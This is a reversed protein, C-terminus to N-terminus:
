KLVLVRSFPIYLYASSKNNQLGNRRLHEISNVKFFFDSAKTLTFEIIKGRTFKKKRENSWFSENSKLLSLLCDYACIGFDMGVSLFALALKSDMCVSLFALGFSLTWVFVSFRFRLGQTRAFLFALAFVLAWVFVSFRFRLCLLKYLCLSVCACLCFDMCVCLFALAFVLTWSFVSFRLRFCLLGHLSQSVYAFWLLRHLSQSVCACACYDICVSRFRLACFLTWVFVSFRLRLGQTRVFM